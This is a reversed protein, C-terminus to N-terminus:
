SNEKTLCVETIKSRLLHTQISTKGKQRSATNSSLDSFTKELRLRQSELAFKKMVSYGYDDHITLPVPKRRSINKHKM